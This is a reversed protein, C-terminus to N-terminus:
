ESQIRVLTCDDNRMGGVRLEDILAAFAEPGDVPALRDWPRGGVEAVRLFWQALADTMLLLVDGRRWTGRARRRQCRVASPRSGLLAPRDDFDAARRVPFAHRLRDNRLLFLCSDGVALARWGFRGDPGPRRQVRLGLLTAFAGEALLAEVYWPLDPANCRRQWEARAAPLWASWPGPHAVFGTTLAEAWPRAFACESAGDAIAFRGTEADGACADECEAATHGARPLRFASWVLNVAPRPM